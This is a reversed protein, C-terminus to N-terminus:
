GIHAIPGHGEGLQWERSVQLRETVFQKAAKIADLPDDGYALRSAVAAAFTCGSGHDNETPIRESPLELWEDDHLVLDVAEGELHGGTIVLYEAGLASLRQTENRVDEITFLPRRCLVGAERLNPTAVLALRVLRSRYISEAEPALLRDGATSVMVPDVVLNPLDGAAAREAVLATVEPTALMGTKVAAVPLDDLVADLQAAVFSPPVLHVDRVAATNQATVATVVSTGHVGLAAMTTLDAQIGAAGGSDSGAITLAVPPTV